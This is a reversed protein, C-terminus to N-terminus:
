QSARAKELVEVRLNLERVSEILAEVLKEYDVTLMGDNKHVLEPYAEEVSQAVVGTDERGSDKWKFRVGHIKKLTETSDLLTEIDTKLREASLPCCKTGLDACAKTATFCSLVLAVAAVTKELKM